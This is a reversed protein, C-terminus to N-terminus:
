SNRIQSVDTANHLQYNVGCFLPLLNEAPPDQGDFVNGMIGIGHTAAYALHNGRM